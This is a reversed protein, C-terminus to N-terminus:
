ERYLVKGNNDLHIKQPKIEYENLTISVVPLDLKYMREKFKTIFILLTSNIVPDNNKTLVFDKRIEELLELNTM